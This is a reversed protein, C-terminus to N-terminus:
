YKVNIIEVIIDQSYSSFDCLITQQSMDLHTNLVYNNNLYSYEIRTVIRSSNNTVYVVDDIVDYKCPYSPLLMTHKSIVDIHKYISDYKCSVMVLAVLLILWIKKM